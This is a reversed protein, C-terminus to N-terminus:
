RLRRCGDLTHYTLVGAARRIFRSRCGPRPLNTYPVAAAATTWLQARSQFLRATATQVDLNQASKFQQEAETRDTEAQQRLQDMLDARQHEHRAFALGGVTMAVVVLASLAALAAAAPRRKALKWAKEWVPM